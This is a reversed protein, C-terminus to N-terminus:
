WAVAEERTIFFHIGPSCESWRDEDFDDVSVTEGVRYAFTPDQKSVAEDFTEDGDPSEIALVRARDCRCKRGTANSRRADAPVLLKVIRNDRCKKWGILDGDPLISLRAFVLDINEAGRLDAGLLDAGRLDARKGGDGAYLWKRHLDLIVQLEGETYRM